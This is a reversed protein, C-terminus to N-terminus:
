WAERQLVCNLLTCQSDTLKGVQEEIWGLDGSVLAAKEPFTLDYNGLAASGRGAIDAIFGPDHAARELVRLIENRNVTRFEPCALPATFISPVTRTQWLEADRTRVKM